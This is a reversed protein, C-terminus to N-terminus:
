RIVGSQHHLDDIMVLIEDWTILGKGVSVKLVDFPLREFMEYPMYEKFDEYTYLGYKEIDVKMAEENYKLDEDFEFMNVFEGRNFLTATVNLLGEAFCNMYEMSSPSFIRVIEQTIDIDTLVVTKEVFEGNIYETAYFIHGIFEYANGETLFVYQNLTMDYLGHSYAIRLITGDSFSATIVTTQQAPMNEHGLVAMDAAEVKGTLHNFALLKDSYTLDEVAKQTGDALTIMTGEVICVSFEGVGTITTDSIITHQYTKAETKTEDGNDDSITLSKFSYMTNAAVTISLVSGTDVYHGNEVTANNNSTNTVTTTTGSDSITILYVKVSTATIHTADNVTYNNITHSGNHETSVGDQNIGGITVTNLRYGSDATVTVSISTGHEVTTGSSIATGNATVSIEAGTPNSWTVAYTKKATTAAITTAGSVTYTGNGNDTAGTVTTDTVNYGESAAVTVTLTTGKLVMIGSSLATNGAIKNNGDFTESNAKVTITADTPNSWTVTYNEVSVAEDFYIYKDVAPLYFYTGAEIVLKDGNKWQTTDFRFELSQHQTGDILGFYSYSTPSAAAGNLTLSVKGTMTIGYNGGTIAAIEAIDQNFNIRVGRLIEGKTDTEQYYYKGVVTSNDVHIPDIVEATLMINDNVTVSYTNGNATLATDNATVAKLIYGTNASVTASYTGDDVTVSGNGSVSQGGFTATVHEPINYTVTWQKVATIKVTDAASVTYTGDGNDTADSVEGLRYGSNVVVTFTLTQGNAVAKIMGDTIAGGDVTIGEGIDFTVNYGVLTTIVIENTKQAVFTYTNDATVAVAEGNVTVSSVTYTSEPTVTFTYEEGVALHDLSSVTANNVTVNATAHYDGKVWAGNVYTYFIEETFTLSGQTTWWMSGAPIMIYDGDNIGYQYNRVALLDNSQNYAFSYNPMEIGNVVPVGKSTDVAMFGYYDNTLIGDTLKLRVEGGLEDIWNEVSVINTNTIDTNNPIIWEYKFSSGSGEKMGDGVYRWEITETFEICYPTQATDQIGMWIRTGKEIVLTDAFANAGIAKESNGIIEFLKNGGGHYHLNTYPIGNVTVSGCEISLPGYQGNFAEETFEMRMKNIGGELWNYNKGTFDSATIEKDPTGNSNVIWKIGNYYFNITESATFYESGYWFRSGKVITVTEGAQTGIYNKFAFIHNYGGTANADNQGHYMFATIPTVTGDPATAYVAYPENSMNEVTVARVDDFWRNTTDGATLTTNSNTTFRVERAGSNEDAYNTGLTEFADAGFTGKEGGVVWASGNYYAYMADEFIYYGGNQVLKTGPLGYLADHEEGQINAENDGQLELITHQGENWYYREGVIGTKYEYADTEENFKEMYVPAEIGDPLTGDYVFKFESNIFIDDHFTVRLRLRTGDKYEDWNEIKEVDSNHLYGLFIGYAEVGNNLSYDITYDETLKYMVGNAYFVSDGKVILKDGNKMTSSDFAFVLRIQAGDGSGELLTWAGQIGGFTGTGQYEVNIANIDLKVMGAVGSAKEDETYFDLVPLTAYIKAGSYTKDDATFNNYDAVGTLQFKASTTSTLTFSKSETYTFTQTVDIEESTEQNYWTATKEIHEDKNITVEPASPTDGWLIEETKLEEGSADKYTITYTPIFKKILPAATNDLEESGWYNSDEKVTDDYAYRAIQILIRESVSTQAIVNDNSDCIIGRFALNKSYVSKPLNYVYAVSEHNEEDDEFWYKTTELAMVKDTSLSLTNIDSMLHSPIILTYTKYGEALKFSGNFDENKEETVLTQGNVKYGKGMEVHFRIGQKDTEEYTGKGDDGLTRKFIRISAGDTQYDTEGLTTKEANATVPNAISIALTVCFAAALVMIGSLLFVKVKKWHFAKM